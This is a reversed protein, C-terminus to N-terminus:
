WGGGGGGGGGGGSGGGGGGGSSGSSSGPPTAAASVTSGLGGLSDAFSGVSDGGGFLGGHHGAVYYHAVAATVAAAGLVAAFRDAWTKEVGLALAYPLFKAFEEPTQQPAKLRRLEDQEAVGLYYRLGEIHDQVKRGAVSYAPLLFKFLVLEVLMLGAIAFLAQVPTDLKVMAGFSLFALVVGLAFSGHNRSFLKKRYELQLDSRFADRAAQVAPDHKHALTISEAPGLLMSALHRESPLWDVDRGTREVTYGDSTKSIRLYGRAGLGLLAAALCKDDYGMRDVFRVDAAGMGPPPEYRPFKPGARPDRGVARWRWYLFVFLLLAGAIGTAAGRNDSLWWALRQRWDPERVVGKPFGLVISMGQHSTLGRTSEFTAGGDRLESRYNRERAGFFGTYAEATLQAAPVPAPLSVDASVHDIPFAWGNGTVNWYLEDHDAFFGLERTARYTIAYEHRGRPVFAHADGIRIRVGNSLRRTIWPVPGGDLSVAVVEFGVRVRQGFRDPYDTPFDRYIGHRIRRGEALVAITENVTLTGDAGIAIESRFDLLREAAPAATAALCLLWACALRKV